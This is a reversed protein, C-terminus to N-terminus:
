ARAAIRDMAGEISATEDVAQGANSQWRAENGTLRAVPAVIQATGIEM